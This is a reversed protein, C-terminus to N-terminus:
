HVLVTARRAVETPWGTGPYEHVVEVVYTGPPLPATARYAFQGLVAVCVEGTRRASLTITVHNGSKSGSAAITQCPDPTSMLGLVVIAQGEAVITPPATAGAPAQSSGTVAAQVTVTALQDPSTPNSCGASGVLLALAAVGIQRQALNM